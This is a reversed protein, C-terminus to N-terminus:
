RVMQTRLKRALTHQAAQRSTSFANLTRMMIPAATDCLTEYMKTFSFSSVFEYDIIQRMTHLIKSRTVMRAEREVTSAVFNVAWERVENRAAVSRNHSSIWWNLISTANGRNSFFGQWRVHGKGHVPNFVYEMLDYISLDHAHLLSLVNELDLNRKEQASLAQQVRQSNIHAQRKRRGKEQRIRAKEEKSGVIPSSRVPGDSSVPPLSSSRHNQRAHFPRPTSSVAFEPPRGLFTTLSPLPSRSIDIDSDSDSLPSSYRSGSM